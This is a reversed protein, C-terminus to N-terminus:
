FRRSLSFILTYDAFAADGHTRNRYDTVSIKRNREVAVPINCTFTYSGRAYLIGPDVSIAYGPRRFGGAGGLADRVPVGEIRGGISVALGRIKPVAHGVGGRFLYQDAVSMVEEGRARRFTSVGNTDRPNFLYVGAFYLESNFYTRKYAQLDVAFGTGGDGAQISQDATAIIQQGQSVALGTANYTGTPLKLSVGLSINNGSETPPKFIWARAGITADGFSNVVYRGTPPYLQNRHAFLVPVSASVSWRPTLQREISFDLLHYINQIQNRNIERQKQEVTGIFHRFSPQYRYGITLTWLKPHAHESRGCTNQALVGLGPTGQRAAM